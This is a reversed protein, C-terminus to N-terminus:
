DGEGEQEDGPLEVPIPTHNIGLSAVALSLSVSGGQSSVLRVLSGSVKPCFQAPTCANMEAVAQAASKPKAYPRCAIMAEFADAVHLIRAGMPISDGSIASPYGSGDFHEHHHLIWRAEEELGLGILVMYGGTSHERMISKEWDSLERDALLIPDPTRLKGVDHLLGAVRIQALQRGKWGVGIALLQSLHSVVDCHGDYGGKADVADALARAIRQM